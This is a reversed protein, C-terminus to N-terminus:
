GLLRRHEILLCRDQVVAVGARALAEASAPESIGLQMWFIRPLPRMALAERAHDPVHAPARFVDVLDVPEALDLLTAVAATGLAERGALKPNVALIRYGAAAMYAPIRYADASPDDKFGVVAIMRVMGLAARIADDDELLLDRWGSM